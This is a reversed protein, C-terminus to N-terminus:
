MRLMSSKVLAAAQLWDLSAHTGIEDGYLGSFPLAFFFLV